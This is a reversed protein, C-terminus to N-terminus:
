MFCRLGIDTIIETEFEGDLNNLYIKTTHANCAHLTRIRKTPSHNKKDLINLLEAIKVNHHGIM